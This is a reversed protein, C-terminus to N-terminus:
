QQREGSQKCPTRALQVASKPKFVWHKQLVFLFIALLLIMVAQVYLHPMGFYDVLVLLACYNIVYGLGYALLYRGLPNGDPAQTGFTWHRNAIFAILMGVAYATTM